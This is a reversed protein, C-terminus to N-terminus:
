LNRAGESKKLDLVVCSEALKDVCYSGRKAKTWSM